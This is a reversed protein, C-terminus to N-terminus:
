RQETVVDAKVQGSPDWLRVQEEFDFLFKRFQLATEIMCSTHAFGHADCSEPTGSMCINRAVVCGARSCISMAHLLRHLLDSAWLRMAATQQMCPSHQLMDPHVLNGM